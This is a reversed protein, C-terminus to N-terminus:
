PQYARGHVTNQSCACNQIGPAVYATFGFPDYIHEGPGGSCREQIEATTHGFVCVAHQDGWGELAYVTRAAGECWQAGGLTINNCYNSVTYAHSTAPSVMPAALLILSTLLVPLGRKRLEPM